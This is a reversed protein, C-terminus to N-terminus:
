VSYPESYIVNQFFHKMSFSVGHNDNTLPSPPITMAWPDNASYFWQPVIISVMTRIFKDLCMCHVAVFSFDWTFEVSPIVIVHWHLEATTLHTYWETPPVCQYCSSNLMYPAPSYSFNGYRGNFKAIVRFRRKLFTKKLCVNYQHDCLEAVKNFTM